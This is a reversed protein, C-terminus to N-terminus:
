IAVIRAPNVSLEPARPIYIVRSSTGREVGSAEAKELVNMVESFLSAKSATFRADIDAVTRL